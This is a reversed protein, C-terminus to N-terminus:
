VVHVIQKYVGCNILSKLPERQRENNERSDWVVKGHEDEVTTWTIVKVPKRQKKM